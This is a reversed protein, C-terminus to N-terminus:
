LSQNDQDTWGLTTFGALSAIASRTTTSNSSFSCLFSQSFSQFGLNCLELSFCIYALPWFWPLILILVLILRLIFSFLKLLIDFRKKDLTSTVGKKLGLSKWEHFFWQYSWREQTWGQQLGLSRSLPCFARSSARSRVTSPIGWWSASQCVLNNRSWGGMSVTIIEFRQSAMCADSFVCWSNNREKASRFRPM